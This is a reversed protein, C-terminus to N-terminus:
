YLVAFISLGFLVALHYIQDVFIGLLVNVPLSDGIPNQRKRIYIFFLRTPHYSDIYFHSILLVPLAVHFVLGFGSVLGFPFGVFLTYIISHILRRRWSTIKDIAERETQSFFDVVFHIFAMFVFFGGIEAVIPM